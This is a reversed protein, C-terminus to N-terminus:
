ETISIALSQASLSFVTRLIKSRFRTYDAPAPFLLQVLASIARQAHWFRNKMAYM